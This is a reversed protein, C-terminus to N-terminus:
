EIHRALVRRFLTSYTLEQVLDKMDHGYRTYAIEAAAGTSAIPYKALNPDQEKLFEYEEFIGEMGGVFVACSFDIDTLMRRRMEGLSQERSGLDDTLIINPFEENESPFDKRFFKSQYLTVHNRPSLGVEKFMHIVLPTIAPHGGFVLRGKHYIIESVLAKVADRIALNDATKWFDKNRELLPISASLFVTLTM